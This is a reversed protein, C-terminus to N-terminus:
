QAGSNDRWDEKKREHGDGVEFGTMFFSGNMM